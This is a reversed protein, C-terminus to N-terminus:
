KRRSRAGRPPRAISYDNPTGGRHLETIMQLSGGRYAIVYYTCSGKNQAIEWDFSAKAFYGKCKSCYNKMGLSKQVFCSVLLYHACDLKTEGVKLIEPSTKPGSKAEVWDLNWRPDDEHLVQWLQEDWGDMTWQSLLEIKGQENTQKNTQRDTGSHYCGVLDGGKEIHVPM